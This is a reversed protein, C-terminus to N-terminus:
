GAKGHNTALPKEDGCVTAHVAGAEDRAERNGRTRPVTGVSKPVSHVVIM